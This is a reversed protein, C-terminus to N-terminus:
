KLIQTPNLDAIIEELNEASGGGIALRGDGRAGGGLRGCIDKAIGEAKIKSNSYVVVNAKEGSVSGLILVSNEEVVSKAIETMNRVDMGYVIDAVMKVGEVDVFEGRFRDGLREIILDKLKSRLISLEKQQQKWQEFLKKSAKVPDGSPLQSYKSGLVYREGGSDIISDELGRIEDRQQKWERRFRDLTKPLKGIQVSFVSAIEKLEDESISSYDMEAKIGGIEDEYRALAKGARFELRVVGDQIRKARILKIGGVKGTSSFHMGGCAEVDWDKIDVIRIKRGPVAGGQYIRFGYKREAENRQMFSIDVGRDERIIKNALDEIRSLESDNLGAYHTIDLRGMEESKHAGAQWVHNGLVGRAAGNIIHTATHHQMLQLRRKWEIACGVEDGVDLGAVDDVKHVVVNGVKEASVMDRSDITGYDTEQGGGSPYFYTKDLVVFNDFVSVIRAKFERVGSDEYYGLITPKLDEPIEIGKVEEKGLGAKEHRASVQIYFDDPIDVRLRSFDKVVDPTLGHTDYLLILDGVELKDKGEKKVRDDVRGIIQGGREVTKHYRKEEIGVINLIDKKNEKLENFYGGLYDIQWSVIEDLPIELDLAKLSRLGRRILLRAFYGSKVNSPVVGDNLMFTLARTHDCVSYLNESPSVEKVLEDVTIGIREAVKQRLEKMDSGSEVNMMGAMKSYEALITKDAEVDVEKKLRELVDGFVAEYANPAGQSLWVFRELGYGTDVVQMDMNRRGSPTEEYMMFVLTALEVGRVIVEFCPGSNGGGSWDAEIYSIEKEDIGLKILLNNCLEVTRDKFYVFKNKTNFAHHGMMEFETLHRGTRGVNDIDNFRLSTQSMVLPNAPPDVTGNLVWPQFCSISAITFFIDDRWRAVIPYRSIREHDNDEFYRLYSERMENLGQAKKMPPNGIFTYEECPPEGCSGKDGLTWFYRGCKRCKKRKFGEERFLEVGYESM